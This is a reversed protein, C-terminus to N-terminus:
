TLRKPHKVNLVQIDTLPYEAGLGVLLVVAQGSKSIFAKGRTNTYCKWGGARNLMVPDGVKNAQNWNKVRTRTTTTIIAVKNKPKATM